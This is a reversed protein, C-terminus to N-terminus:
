LDLELAVPCHDSGHIDGLIEVSKIADVAFDSILFYDIRWGINRARAGARYSWWTYEQKDPYLYRYCDVFGANLLASFKERERPSFGPSNVNAEPRALDLPTAAVNLDGCIIIPKKKWRPPSTNLNGGHHFYSLFTSKYPNTYTNCDSFTCYM